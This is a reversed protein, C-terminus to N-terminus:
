VEKAAMLNDLEKLFHHRVFNQILVEGDPLIAKDVGINVRLNGTNSISSLGIGTFYILFEIRGIACKVWNM